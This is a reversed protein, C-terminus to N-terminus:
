YKLKYSRNCLRPARYCVTSRCWDYWPVVLWQWRTVLLLFYRQRSVGLGGMVMGELLSLRLM